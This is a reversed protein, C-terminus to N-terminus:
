GYCRVPDTCNKSASQPKGFRGGRELFQQHYEEARNFNRIEEVESVISNGFQSQMREKVEEAIQKQEDNHYYIGSRYQTGVDNGQQNLTTPDHIKFFVELLKEYPVESPAYVVQVVENHGTDGNCVEEYSVDMKDGQSYGVSTSLVGPVRQFNLEVGWFCGAGFTAREMEAGKVLKMLEVDFTLAKGALPHNADITIHEDDMDAVRAQMGNQLQVMVGPKLGEPAQAIPVKATMDSLWEGYAASPEIKDKRQEGVSMGMVLQEFGPVVRGEGPFFGLPTGRERSADFTSGDDLQGVYHVEVYDGTEVVDASSAAATINRAFPRNEFRVKLSRVSSASEVGKNQVFPHHHWSQFFPSVSSISRGSSSAFSKPAAGVSHQFRLTKAPLRSIGSVFSM